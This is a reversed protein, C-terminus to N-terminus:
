VDFFSVLSVLFFVVLISDFAQSLFKRNDSYFSTLSWLSWLSPSPKCARAAQRFFRKSFAAPNGPNQPEGREGFAFGEWHTYKVSVSWTHMCCMLSPPVIVLYSLYPKNTWQLIVFVTLHKFIGQSVFVQLLPLMTRNCFHILLLFM